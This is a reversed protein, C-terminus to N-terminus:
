SIGNAHTDGSEGTGVRMPAVCEILPHAMRTLPNTRVAGGEGQQCWLEVDATGACAAGGTLWPACHVQVGTHSGLVKGQACGMCPPAFVLPAIALPAVILM